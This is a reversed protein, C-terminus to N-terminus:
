YADRTSIQWNPSHRVSVNYELAQHLDYGLDVVPLQSATQEIAVTSVSCLAAVTLSTKLLQM